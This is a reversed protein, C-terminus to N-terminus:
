AISLSLSALALRICPKIARFPKFVIKLSTNYLAQYSCFAQSSFAEQSIQSYTQLFLLFVSNSLAGRTAIPAWFPCKPLKNGLQKWQLTIKLFVIKGFSIQYMNSAYHAISKRVLFYLIYRDVILFLMNGMGLFLFWLSPMISLKQSKSEYKLLVPKLIEWQKLTQFVFITTHVIHYHLWSNM